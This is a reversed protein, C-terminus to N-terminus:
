GRLWASTFPKKHCVAAPAPPPNAAANNPPAEMPQFVDIYENTNAAVAENLGANGYISGNPGVYTGPQPGPQIDLNPVEPPVIVNLQTGEASAEAVAAEAAQSLLWKGGVAAASGVVGVVSLAIATGVMAAQFGKAADDLQLGVTVAGVKPFGIDQPDDPNMNTTVLVATGDAKRQLELYVKQTFGLTVIQNGVLLPHRFQVGTFNLEIHDNNIAIRLGGAPVTPTVLTGDQLKFQQWWLLKNNVVSLGDSAITFDTPQSGLLIVQAGPLLLNQTLQEGSIALVSNATSPLNAVIAPDIQQTLNPNAPGDTKALVAFLSKENDPFFSQIGQPNTLYVGNVAYSAMTPKLWAFDGTDVVPNLFLTNFVQTFQAPNALFGAQFAMYVGVPLKQIFPLRPLLANESLTLWSVPTGDSLQSDATDPVLDTGGNTGPKLKLRVQLILIYDVLSLSTPPTGPNAAPTTATGTLIKCNLEVRGAQGGSGFVWPAWTGTVRTGSVSDTFDFSAPTSNKSAILSNGADYNVVNATDWGQLSIPAQVTSTAM